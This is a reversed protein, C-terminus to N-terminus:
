FSCIIWIIYVMKVFGNQLEALQQKLDRNQTLARSLATKDSQINELLQARDGALDGLDELRSELREVAGEREELLRSVYVCLLMTACVVVNYCVCWLMTACVMINYCVCWLMISCVVVNYCVGFCQLVCWFMTAYVVVNYCVGCCQLLECCCHLVCWLMTASVVVNYCVDCCQLVCWLMTACVVIQLVCWLM